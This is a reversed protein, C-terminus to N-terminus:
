RASSLLHMQKHTAREMQKGVSSIVELWNGSRQLWWKSGEGESREEPDCGPHIKLNEKMRVPRFRSFGVEPGILFHRIENKILNQSITYYPQFSYNKGKRLVVNLLTPMLFFLGQM